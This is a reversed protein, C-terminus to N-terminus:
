FVQLVAPYGSTSPPALIHQHAKARRLAHTRIGDAGSLFTCIQLYFTLSLYLSRLREPTEYQLRVAVRERLTLKRQESPFTVIPKILVRRLLNSRGSM